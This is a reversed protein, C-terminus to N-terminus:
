STAHAAAEIVHAVADPHSVLVAHSAGRIVETHSGARRATAQEAAPPVADGSM